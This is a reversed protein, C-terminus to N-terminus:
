MGLGIHLAAAQRRKRRFGADPLSVSWALSAEGAETTRQTSQEEATIWDKESKEEGKRPTWQTFGKVNARGDRM